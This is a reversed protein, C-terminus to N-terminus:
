CIERIDDPQEKGESAGNDAGRSVEASNIRAYPHSGQVGRGRHNGDGQIRMAEKASRQYGAKDKRLYDTASIKPCIRYSIQM